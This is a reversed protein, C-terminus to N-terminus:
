IWTEQNITKTSTLLKDLAEQLSICKEELASCYSELDSIYLHRHIFGREGYRPDNRSPRELFM